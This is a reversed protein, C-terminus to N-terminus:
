IQQFQSQLLVLSQNIGQSSLDNIYPCTGLIPVDSFEKILSGQDAEVANLEGENSSNLIVGKIKLGHQRAANITLLTHNLTGIQFRSVIILPLGMQLALDVVNYRRTIPVLLGGVGEVLMMSHKSQLARFRELIKEPDLEKGEFRAAQYPSAPMKLRFPCVYELPDQTGTVEMLFKADSNASSSCEPNVGTEIPKMVGVDEGRSKFLTALCATVITKGVGTDTGTIFYGKM